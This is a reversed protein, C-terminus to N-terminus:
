ETVRPRDGLAVDRRPMLEHRLEVVEIVSGRATLVEVSDDPVWGVSLGVLEDRLCQRLGGLADREEQTEPEEGALTSRAVEVRPRHWVDM